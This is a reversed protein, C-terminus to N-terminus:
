RRLALIYIYIYWTFCLRCNELLQVTEALSLFGVAKLTHLKQRCYCASASKKCEKQVSPIVRKIFIVSFWGVKREWVWTLIWLWFEVFYSMIKTSIILNSNIGLYSLFNWLCTKLIQIFLHKQIQYELWSYRLSCGFMQVTIRLALPSM